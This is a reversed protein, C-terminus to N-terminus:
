RWSCFSHSGMENSQFYHSDISDTERVNTKVALILRKVGLSKYMLRVAGFVELCQM